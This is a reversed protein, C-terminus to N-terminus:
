NLIADRLRYDVVLKLAAQQIEKATKTDDSVIAFQILQLSKEVFTNDAHTKLMSENSKMKQSMAIDRDRNEVLVSYESMPNGIFKKIIDYRKAEFLDDKAYHWYTKATQPNKKLVNEFLAVTKANEGLTRNIARVEAFLDKKEGGNTVQLTASNRLDTLAKMAPPYVEALDKWASLAFSLRVGKMSPEKELSNDHFWIFRKLAEEYSGQTVLEKTESLYKQMEQAHLNVFMFLFVLYSLKKM